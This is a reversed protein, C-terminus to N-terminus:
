GQDRAILSGSLSSSPAALLGSQRGVPGRRRDDRAIRNTDLRGRARSQDMATKAPPRKTEEEPTAAFTARTERVIQWAPM